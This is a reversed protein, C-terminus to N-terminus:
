FRIGFAGLLSLVGGFFLVAFTASAGVLRGPSVGTTTGLGVAHFVRALILVVGLAHVIWVSFGAQQVAYLLILALPVYEAFNAHVRIRRRMEENNGDGIDIKFAVRGQVVRVSFFLFMLGCLAAYLFVPQSM